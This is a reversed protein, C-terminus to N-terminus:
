AVKAMQPYKQMMQVILEQACTNKYYRCWAILSRRQYNCYLIEPNAEIVERLTQLQNLQVSLVVRSQADEIQAILIQRFQIHTKYCLFAGCAAWLIPAYLAVCALFLIAWYDKTALSHYLYFPITLLFIYAKINKKNNLIQDRRVLAKTNM